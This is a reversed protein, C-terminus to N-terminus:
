ARSTQSIKYPTPHLGASTVYVERGGGRGGELEGKRRGERQSVVVLEVTLCSSLVFLVRTVHLCQKVKSRESWTIEQDLLVHHKAQLPPFVAGGAGGPPPPPAVCCVFDRSLADAFM